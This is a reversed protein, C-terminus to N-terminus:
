PSNNKLKDEKKNIIMLQNKDHVNTTDIKTPKKNFKNKNPSKNNKDDEFHGSKKMVLQHSELSSFTKNLHKHVSEGCENWVRKCLM